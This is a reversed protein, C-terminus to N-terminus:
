VGSNMGLFVGGWEGKQLLRVQLLELGSCPSERIGGLPRQTVSALPRIGMWVEALCRVCGRRLVKKKKGKVGPNTGGDPIVLPPVEGWRLRRM